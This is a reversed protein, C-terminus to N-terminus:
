DNGFIDTVNQFTRRLFTWLSDRHESVAVPTYARYWSTHVRMPLEGFYIFDLKPDNLQWTGDVYDGWRLDVYKRAEQLIRRRHIMEFVWESRTQYDEDGAQLYLWNKLRREARDRPTVWPSIYYGEYLSFDNTQDWDYTDRSLALMKLAPLHKICDRIAKHNVLWTRRWGFRNGLSLHLKTLTTLRSILTTATDSLWRDEEEFVVELSQLNKFQAVLLPLVATEVINATCNQLSLLKLHPNEQLFQLPLNSRGEWVFSELPLIKGVSALHAATLGDVHVLALHKLASGASTGILARIDGESRFDVGSISLFRLNRLPLLESRKEQSVKSFERWGNWVLQKLAPCRNM